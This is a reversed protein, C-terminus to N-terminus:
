VREFAGFFDVDEEVDDNMGVRAMDQHLPYANGDFFLQDNFITTEPTLYPPLPSSTESRIPFSPTDDFTSNRTRKIIFDDEDDDSDTRGANKRKKNRQSRKSPLGLHATRVHEELTAKSTFSRGCGHVILGPNNHQEELSIETKGCVFNRKNEHVTKIHVNLNGRKTFKKECGPYTCDFLVKEKTPGTQVPLISHELEMHRTLEKNTTFSTPCLTCSPPHYTANHNQFETWTSFTSQIVERDDQAESNRLIAVNQEHCVECSYKTPDHKARMHYRLREANDYSKNCAQGTAMDIQDCAYPKIKHHDALIHADLTEQKRFFRDCGPFGRCRFKEKARHTAIHRRLRTATTFTATCDEWDCVHDRVNSHQNKIHHKLHGDRLFTKM